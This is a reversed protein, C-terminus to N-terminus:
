DKRGGPKNEKAGLNTVNFVEDEFFDFYDDQDHDVEFLSDNIDQEKKASMRASQVVPRRAARVPMPRRAAAGSRRNERVPERRKAVESPVVYRQELPDDEETFNVDRFHDETLFREDNVIIRKKRFWVWYPRWRIMWVLWDVVLGVALLLILLKLWNESLWLLPSGGSGALNFLKLVWNALAKLWGLMINVIANTYGTQTM